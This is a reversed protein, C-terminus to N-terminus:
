ILLDGQNVCRARRDNRRWGGQPERWRKRVRGRLTDPKGSAHTRAEGKGLLSAVIVPRIANTM